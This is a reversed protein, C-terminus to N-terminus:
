GGHADGIPQSMGRRPLPDAAPMRSDNTRLPVRRATLDGEIAEFRARRRGEDQAGPPGVRGGYDLRSEGRSLCGWLRLRRASHPETNRKGREARHRLLTANGHRRPGIVFRKGASLLADTVQRLENERDVLEDRNLRRGIQFPSETRRPPHWQVAHKYLRTNGLLAYHLGIYCLQPKCRAWASAM